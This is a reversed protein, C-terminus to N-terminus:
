VPTKVISMYHTTVADLIEFATEGMKNGRNDLLPNVETVELCAVKGTDLLSQIIYTVETPDFGKPVPTGTGRSVLDCDLSDVDFSIYIVDCDKLRKKVEKMCREAGRHRYEAVKYNRLELSDILHNEAEETDRVGFFVLDEPLVKPGEVAVNKLQEWVAKTGDTVVNIQYERNDEALAAALPMGHVNGSPTTFPSHLDAHADIWVVGVRKEPFAAKVGSVTGLASSHDGSLIIPFHKKQITTKVAEAVRECHEEVFAIRKAFIAKVKSYVSENDTEVDLSPFRIFYDNGSNIAAVELADIGMDSGRTGAGIDSRNKLIKIPKM